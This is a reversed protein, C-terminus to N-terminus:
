SELGDVAEAPSLGAAPLRGAFELLKPRRAAAGRFAARADDIRGARALLVARWFTPEPNGGLADQALDLDGLAADLAAEDLTFDGIVGGPQFLARGLLAYARQMGVLRRLEALPEPHDDVRLDVEVAEWPRESREGGVVLIASSQRGRIDGGEAEAADLATALRDALPGSASRYADIMADVVTDREMMNAQASVGAIARHGAESVCGTGTHAASAGAADVLGVQRSERQPDARVLQALADDASVGDRLLDLARPGYGPDAFSQTAVAGVGAEAWTVLSGVSFFHSQVAVGLSGTDPDRAVLSYTM